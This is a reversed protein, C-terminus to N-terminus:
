IDLNRGLRKSEEIYRQIHVDVLNTKRADEVDRDVVGHAICDSEQIKWNPHKKRIDEVIPALFKKGFYTYTSLSAVKNRKQAFAIAQLLLKRGIGQKRRESDVAVGRIWVDNKDIDPETLSAIGIIDKGEIAVLFTDKVTKNFYGKHLDSMDFYRIRSMLTKDPHKDLWQNFEQSSWEKFTLRSM